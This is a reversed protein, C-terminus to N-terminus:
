REISHELPPSVPPSVERDGTKILLVRKKLQMLKVNLKSYVHSTTKKMSEDQEARQKDLTMFIKQELKSVTTFTSRNLLDQRIQKIDKDFL